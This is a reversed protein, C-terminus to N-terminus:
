ATIIIKGIVRGLIIVSKNMDACRGAAAEIIDISADKGGIPM